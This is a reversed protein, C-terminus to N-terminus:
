LKKILYERSPKVSGGKKLEKSYLLKNGSQSCFHSIDVIAAPDDAIVRVISGSSLEKIRKQLRLVPLPCLLGRTDLELHWLM